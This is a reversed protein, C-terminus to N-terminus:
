IPTYRQYNNRGKQKAQYMAIDSHKLLTDTDEGDDPYIAIGISTTIHLEHVDLVFPEQFVNLVKQAVTVTDKEQDIEPMLLSFEDGGTRSITDNKRLLGTLRRGVSHLLKDGVSHGFTDNVNKFRDLDLSMVALRRQSRHAQSMAFDLRDAFLVRNPLGTLADHYALKRIVEEARVRETIDNYIVLNHNSVIAGEVTVYRISGDKCTITMERPPLSRGQKYAEMLEEPWHAFRKQQAQDQDAQHQWEDITPIDKLTYGFLEHHKRNIYQINGQLDAWSIATPSADMLAQLEQQRERLSEEMQKRETIDRGLGLILRRGGSELVGFRVEVPFTTGDKRKHVGELTIPEGPVMKKWKEQHKDVVVRQDIDQVSLGLLEERTYGLSDCGHQNVDIIKGDFDHLLITDQSHEVLLRFREESQRLAEEMQKRETIDTQIASSGIYRGDADFNPTPSLITYVKKGDKTKWVIEYPTSDRMGKKRKAFMEEQFKRTEEDYYFDVTPRGIVEDKSYGLITCFQENAYTLVGKENISTLGAKMTEVLTRFREESERLEEEMQRRETIDTLMVVSLGNELSTRSTEIEKTEGDKCVISIERRTGGLKSDKRWLEAVEQRYEKDPFAKHMWDRGTPIDELTYGTIATFEPNVYVHKGDVEMLAVGYLANQLITYFTEKEQQLLEEARKRETIDEVVEIFGTMTGDHGLAPFTQIRVHYRSGDDRVGESEVEALKGTAMTQVGPCHPCVADRKEFERFCKKGVLESVPKDIQKTGGANVMIINHDADILNIGFDVNEVLTRYREESQRLAEEAKIRDTIDDYVLYQKGDKLDVSRFDIIKDQGDKCRVNFVRLNEDGIKVEEVIDRKWISIVKNRYTKNPYAKKFWTDKDPIDEITYGFIKTFQPNLYKFSRDPAMISIGFPADEALMKFREESERLEGEMQKRETIDRATGCIGIIEGTINRIPVKVVNQIVTNGQVQFSHETDIVEGGLVRLDEEEMSRVSVERGFLSATTKGVLESASVDFYREMAPNVATFKLDRDKIFILDQSAEFIARFREESEKLREEAQKRESIDKSIVMIANIKGSDPSTVPSLTRIFYRNDRQSWYEYSQATGTKVVTKVRQSFDKSSEPSHFESYGKGIVHSSQEGLRSLYKSNVFLYHCTRDILYISDESSEVLSRYKEESERLEDQMQKRETIEQQLQANTAQLAATRETVLEELHERHRQLAEEVRKRETIDSLMVVARGDDLVTSNFEIEKTVGNKCVISIVRKTGGVGRDQKWLASIKQRYAKDPYAKHMWDKGTPIDELTYGTIGTFASNVYVHKGDKDLLVVGYLANQLITVFTERERLLLAELQKRETIDRLVAVVGAKGEGKKLLSGHIEVALKKGTRTYVEVEYPPPQQGSIVQKFAALMTAISKPSFMKLVKFRKGVVDEEAYGVAETVSKNIATVKGTLDLLVIGDKVSDIIDRLEGESGRLVEQKRENEAREQEAIRQRLETLEKILQEKTKNRDRMKNPVVCGQKSLRFSQPLAISCLCGQEMSKKLM